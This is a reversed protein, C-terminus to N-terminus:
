APIASHVASEAQDEPPLTVRRVEAMDTIGRQVQAHDILLRGLRVRKEAEQLKLVEACGPCLSATPLCREASAAAQASHAMDPVRAADVCSRKSVRRMAQCSM